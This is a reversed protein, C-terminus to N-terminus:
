FRKRNEIVIGSYLNWVDNVKALAMGSNREMFEILTRHQDMLAKLEKSDLRQKFLQDFRACNVFSNLLYDEHLPITHIPIPQWNLEDNWVEEGTPPFLGAATCLASMLNRDEDTSRMYVRDPSYHSGILNRYRSRM